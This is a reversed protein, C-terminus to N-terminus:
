SAISARNSIYYKETDTIHWALERPTLNPRELAIQRVRERETDPIRNWVRKPNRKSDALGDFGNDVYRAYWQYFTSRPIDLESLTKRVSLNSEEVMRIIEIKESQNYCM